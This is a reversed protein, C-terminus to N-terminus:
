GAHIVELIMAVTDRGLESSAALAVALHAEEKSAFVRCVYREPSESVRALCRRIMRWHIQRPLKETRRSCTGCILVVFHQGDMEDALTCGVDVLPLNCSPCCRMM